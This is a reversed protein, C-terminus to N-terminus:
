RASNKSSGPRDPVPMKSWCLYAVAVLSHKCNYKYLWWFKEIPAVSDVRWLLAKCLCVPNQMIYHVSMKKQPPWTHGKGCGFLASRILQDIQSLRSSGVWRELCMRNEWLSLFINRYCDVVYVVVKVMKQRNSGICCWGQYWFWMDAENRMRFRQISIM